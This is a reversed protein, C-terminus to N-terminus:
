SLPNKDKNAQEIPEMGSDSRITNIEKLAEEGIISGDPEIYGQENNVALTQARFTEPKVTERSKIATRSSVQPVLENQNSNSRKIAQRASYSRVAYIIISAILIATLMINFMRTEGLVGFSYAADIGSVNYSIIDAIVVGGLIGILSIKLSRSILYNVGGLIVGAILGFLLPLYSAVSLGAVLKNLALVVLVTVALAGMAKTFGSFSRITAFLILAILAPVIFGGINIQAGFLSVNPSFYGILMIILSLLVLSKKLRLVDLSRKFGDFVIFITLVGAIILGIPIYM